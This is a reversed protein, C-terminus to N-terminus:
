GSRPVVYRLLNLCCLASVVPFLALPGFFYAFYFTGIVSAVFGCLLSAVLRLSRRPSPTLQGLSNAFGARYGPIALFGLCWGAAVPWLPIPPPGAPNPLIVVPLVPFPWVMCVFPPLFYILAHLWPVGM